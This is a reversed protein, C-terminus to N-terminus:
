SIIVLYSGAEADTAVTRTSSMLIVSLTIQSAYEDGHYVIQDAAQMGADIGPRHRPNLNRDFRPFNSSCVEM